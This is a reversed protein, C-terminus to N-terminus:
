RDSINKRKQVVIIVIFALIGCGAMFLVQFLPTALNEGMKVQIGMYEKYESMVQAPLGAFTNELAQECCAERMLSAGHLIPIYKLATAVGDPLYGMPLYIAGVFGVLTGVVTAIGSWASSSKIFLACLYMIISFICVNLVILLFIKMLAGANLMTGGTALIYGLAIALTLVCMFIGILVASVVYSLAIMSRNVPASYLSALKGESIDTVRNGIVSMTVTVANVVLIGALTWYQVLGRAHAQDLAADRVGGYEKLLNVVSEENMNGLFVGMLMLVILTALLSFFVAARDRLFVLCNRRTLSIFKMMKM